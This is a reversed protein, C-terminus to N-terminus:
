SSFQHFSCGAAMDIAADLSPLMPTMEVTEPKGSMPEEVTRPTPIPQTRSRRRRCLLRACCLLLSLLLVSVLSFLIALDVDWLLSRPTMEHILICPEVFYDKLWKGDGIEVHPLSEVDFPGVFCAINGTAKERQRDRHLTYQDLLQSLSNFEVRPLSIM